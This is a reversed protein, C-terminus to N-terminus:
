VGLVDEPLKKKGKPQRKEFHSEGVYISSFPGTSELHKSPLIDNINEESKSARRLARNAKGSSGFM